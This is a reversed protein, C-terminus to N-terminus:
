PEVEAAVTVEGEVIATIKMIVSPGSTNPISADIDIYVEGIPLTTTQSGTLTVKVYEDADSTSVNCQALLIGGNIITDNRCQANFALDGEYPDGNEDLMRVKVGLWPSGQQITTTYRAPIENQTTSM